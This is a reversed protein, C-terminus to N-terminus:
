AIENGHEQAFEKVDGAAEKVMGVGESVANTIVPNPRRNEWFGKKPLTDEFISRPVMRTRGSRMQQTVHRRKSENWNQKMNGWIERGTNVIGKPENNQNPLSRIGLEAMAM